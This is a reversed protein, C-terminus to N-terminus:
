KLYQKYTLIFNHIYIYIYVTIPQIAIRSRIRLRPDPDAFFRIVFPPDPDRFPYPDAIGFWLFLIPAWQM